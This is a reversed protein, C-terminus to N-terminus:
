IPPTNPNKPQPRLFPDEDMGEDPPPRNPQKWDDQTHTPTQTYTTPATPRSPESYSRGNSAPTTPKTEISLIASTLISGIFISAGAAFWRWDEMLIWIISSATFIGIGLTIIIKGHLTM